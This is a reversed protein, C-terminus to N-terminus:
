VFVSVSDEKLMSEIPTAMTVSLVVSFRHRPPDLDSGFRRNRSLMVGIRPPCDVFTQPIQSCKTCEKLQVPTFTRRRAKKHPQNLELLSCDDLYM